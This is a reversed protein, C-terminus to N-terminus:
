YTYVVPSAVLRPIIITKNLNLKIIKNSTENNSVGGVNFFCRDDQVGTIVGSATIVTFLPIQGSTYGSTNNSVIGNTAVEIYNTADDTLSISGAVVKVVVNDARVVGLGYVFTLGSHSGQKFPDVIRPFSTLISM